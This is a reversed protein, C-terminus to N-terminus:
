IVAVSFFGWIIESNYSNQVPGFVAYYVVAAEYHFQYHNFKNLSSHLRIIESSDYPESSQTPGFDCVIPSHFCGGPVM